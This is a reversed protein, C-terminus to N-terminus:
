PCPHVAVVRWPQPSLQWRACREPQPGITEGSALILRHQVTVVELLNEGVWSAERVETEVQAVPTSELVRRLKADPGRIAAGGGGATEARDFFRLDGD